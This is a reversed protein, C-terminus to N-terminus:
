ASFEKSFKEFNSCVASDNSDASATLDWTWSDYFSYDPTIAADKFISCHLWIISRKLWPQKGSPFFFQFLMSILSFPFSLIPTKDCMTKKSYNWIITLAEEGGELAQENREARRERRQVRTKLPFRSIAIRFAWWFLGEAIKEFEQNKFVARKRENWVTWFRSNENLSTLNTFRNRSSQTLM